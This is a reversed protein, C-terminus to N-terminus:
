KPKIIEVIRDSFVRAVQYSDVTLQDLPLRHFANRPGLRIYVERGAVDKFADFLNLHDMVYSHIGLYCYQYDNRPTPQHQCHIDPHTHIMGLVQLSKGGFQVFLNREDATVPLADLLSTRQTNNKNPLILLGGPVFFALNEKYLNKERFSAQWLIELGEEVNSFLVGGEFHNFTSSLFRDELSAKSSM